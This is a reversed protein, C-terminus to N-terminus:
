APGRFVSGLANKQTKRSASVPPTEPHRCPTKKAPFDNGYEPATQIKVCRLGTESAQSALFKPPDPYAREQANRSFM